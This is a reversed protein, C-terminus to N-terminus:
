LDVRWGKRFKITERAFDKIDKLPITEIAIDRLKRKNKNYLGKNGYRLLLEKIEEKWLLELLAKSEINKNVKAARLRKISVNGFKNIYAVEIGWFEPVYNKIKNEFKTGIVITIKDFTKNYAVIQGPLRELTDMDSKIEYGCLRGNALAIDVRADGDCIGLENIIRFEHGSNKKNLKDILKNRIDKDNLM